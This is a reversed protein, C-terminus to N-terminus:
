RGKLRSIAAKAAPGHPAYLWKLAHHEITKVAPRAVEERLRVVGTKELVWPFRSEDFFADDAGSMGAATKAIDPKEGATLAVLEAPGRVFWYRESSHTDYVSGETYLMWTVRFPRIRPRLASPKGKHIVTATIAVAKAIPMRGDDDMIGFVLDERFEHENLQPHSHEDMKEFLIRQVYKFEEPNEINMPRMHKTYKSYNYGVYAPRYGMNMTVYEVIIQLDPALVSGLASEMTARFERM